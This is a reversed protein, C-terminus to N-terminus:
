KKFVLSYLTVGLQVGALVYIALTLRNAAQQEALLADRLRRMMEVVAGQGRLRSAEELLEGDTMKELEAM